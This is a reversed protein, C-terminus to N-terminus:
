LLGRALFMTIFKDFGVDDWFTSFFKQYAPKELDQWIKRWRGGWGREGCGAARSTFGAKM